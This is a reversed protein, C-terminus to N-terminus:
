EHSRKYVAFRASRKGHRPAPISYAQRYQRSNRQEKRVTTPDIGPPTTGHQHLPLPDRVLVTTEETDHREVRRRKTNKLSEGGQRRVRSWWGPADTWSTRITRHRRLDSATTGSARRTDGPYRKGSHKEFKWGSVGLAPQCSPKTPVLATSLQQVLYHAVTVVHRDNISISSSTFMAETRERACRCGM